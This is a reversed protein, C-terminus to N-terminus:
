RWRYEMAPGSETEPAGWGFWSLHTQSSIQQLLSSFSRSGEQVIKPHEPLGALQIARQIAEERNGLEDVLGAQM